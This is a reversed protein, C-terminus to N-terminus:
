LKWIVSFAVGMYGLTREESPRFRNNPEHPETTLLNHIKTPDTEKGVLNLVGYGISFDLMLPDFFEVQTGIKLYAGGRIDSEKNVLVSNELITSDTEPDYLRWGLTNPPLINLRGEASLYLNPSRFFSARIGTGLSYVNATHRYIFRNTGPDPERSLIFTTQGNLFFADFSVPIRIISESSPIVELELHIGNHSGSLGGGLPLIEIPSLADTAPSRGNFWMTQVGLMPRVVLGHRVPDLPTSTSDTAGTTQATAQFAPIMVAIAAVALLRRLRSFTYTM